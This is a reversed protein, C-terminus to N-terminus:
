SGAFDNDPTLPFLEDATATLAPALFAFFALLMSLFGRRFAKSSHADELGLGCTSAADTRQIAPCAGVASLRHVARTPWYCREM